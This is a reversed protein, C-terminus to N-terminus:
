LLMLVSVSHFIACDCNFKGNNGPTVLHLGTKSASRVTPAEPPYGPATVMSGEQTVLGLAKGLPITSNLRADNINM